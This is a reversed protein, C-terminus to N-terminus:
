MEPCEVRRDEPPQTRHTSQSVAADGIRTDGPYMGTSSARDGRPLRDISETTM